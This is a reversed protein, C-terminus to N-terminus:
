VNEYVPNHWTEALAPKQWERFLPWAYIAEVYAKAAPEVPVRYSRLRTAVPAFHADALTPAGYLFPGGKGFRGRAEAWLAQIRAIDAAAAADHPTRRAMDRRLNMPFQTRLAAFGSHMEAAASRAHARAARDAPWMGPAREALFEGIAQSDWITMGETQLVPVRGAPSIELVRRKFDPDAFFILNERFALGALRCALYGRLSWSSYVKDAITLVADAM